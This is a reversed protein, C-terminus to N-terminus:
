EYQIVSEEFTLPIILEHMLNGDQASPEYLILVGHPSTPAEKLHIDTSFTGWEPAGASAQVVGEALINHGDELTYHFVGEFTRSEGELKFTMGVVAHATPQQVRFADNELREAEESADAEDAPTDNADDASPSPNAPTEEAPETRGPDDGQAAPSGSGCGALLTLLMFALGFILVSQIRRRQPM